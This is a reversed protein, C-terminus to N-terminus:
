PDNSRLLEADHHGGLASYGTALTARATITDPHDPGLVHEGDTRLAEQLALADQLLGSVRLSEGLRFIM